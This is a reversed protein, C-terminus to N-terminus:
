SSGAPASRHTPVGWRVVAAAWTFGGGFASLLATSGPQLWGAAAAEYLALPVSAASTNGYRELNVFVRERPFAMRTAIADIIRINAQHPIMVDIADITLGAAAVAEQSAATMERIAHRYVERGNMTFYHAGAALGEATLPQRTGGAPIAMHHEYEGASRLVSSLMGYPETSAQLVVAGAGDGFLVCTSRDQWNLIHSFLDAAVVLVRQHAGSQIMRTAVSLGYVFGSCAAVLDFAGARPIGLEAQIKCATAPFLLDPTCTALIVLDITAPDIAAEAIAQRAAATALVSTPEDAGALHRQAIGTRSRIWADTTEVTRALEANSVVRRPVAMGWGIIAAYRQM